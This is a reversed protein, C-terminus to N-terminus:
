SITQKGVIRRRQRLNAAAEAPSLVPRQSNAPLTVRGRDDVKFGLLLLAKRFNLGRKLVTEMGISKMYAAVEFEWKGNPTVFDKIRQKFPELAETNKTQILVNGGRMGQTIDTANESSSPVALVQKSKYVKGETDLVIGEQAHVVQHVKDGYRPQFSRAFTRKADKVRFGGASILKEDRAHIVKSNHIAAEANERRLEFQLERDDPVEEPARGQLASHVTSNYGDVTKQLNGAWDADNDGVVRRFMAQKLTQIARDLPALANVDQPDKVVHWIDKEELLQQFPGTFESGSDTDLRSPSQEGELIEKFAETVVTPTKSQLPRAWLQKSFVNLVVLIYQFKGSPQATLDALDAMWRDNIDAASFRGRRLNPKELTAPGKRRPRRINRERYFLQRVPDEKDYVEKIVKYPVYEKNNKLHLYIRYGDPYNLKEATDYIRQAMVSADPLTKETM